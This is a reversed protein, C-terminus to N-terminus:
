TLTDQLFDYYPVMEKGMQTTLFIEVWQTLLVVISTNWFAYLM